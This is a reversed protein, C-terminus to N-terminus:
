NIVEIKVNNDSLLEGNIQLPLKTQSLDTKLQEINHETLEIKWLRIDMYMSKTNVFYISMIEIFKERIESIQSERSVYIYKHTKFDETSM